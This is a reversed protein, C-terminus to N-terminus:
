LRFPPTKSRGEYIHIYIYRACCSGVFKYTKKRFGTKKLKPSFVLNKDFFGPKQFLGEFQISDYRTVGYINIIAHITYGKWKRTLNIGRQRCATGSLSLLLTPSCPMSLIKDVSLNMTWKFRSLVHGANLGLMFLFKQDVIIWLMFTKFQVLQDVIAIHCMMMFCTVGFNLNCGGYLWIPSLLHKPVRFNCCKARKLRCFQVTPDRPGKALAMTFASSNQLLRPKELARDHYCSHYVKLPPLKWMSYCWYFRHQAFVCAHSNLISM